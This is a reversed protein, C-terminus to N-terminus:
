CAVAMPLTCTLNAGKQGLLGTPQPEGLCLLNDGDYPPHSVTDLIVAMHQGAEVLVDHLPDEVNHLVCWSAVGALLHLLPQELGVCQVWVLTELPKSSHGKGSAM